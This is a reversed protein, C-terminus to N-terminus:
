LITLYLRADWKEGHHPIQGRVTLLTWVPLFFPLIKLPIKM